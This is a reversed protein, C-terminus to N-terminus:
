KSQLKGHRKQIRKTIATRARRQNQSITLKKDILADFYDIIANYLFNQYQHKLYMHDHDLYESTINFNICSFNM